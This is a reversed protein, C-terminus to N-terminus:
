IIIFYSTHNNTTNCVVQLPFKLDRKLLEEYGEKDGFFEGVCFAM